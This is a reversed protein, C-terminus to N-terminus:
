YYFNYGERDLSEDEVLIYNNIEYDNLNYEIGQVGHHKLRINVKKKEKSYKKFENFNSSIEKNKNYTYYGQSLIILGSNIIFLFVVVLSIINLLKNKQKMLYIVVYIPLLYIYPIYRAWYSGDLALVLIITTSLLILYLILKDYEKKNILKILIYLSGIISIIFVGSFLPGFGGVRIDPSIFNTIEKRYVRFPIKLEPENLYTEYSPSVDESKSFISILFQIGHSKESMSKPIEKNIMNEVHGKGYLPYFPHGYNVLNKTYTNNAVVIIAIFVTVLYFISDKLIIKKFEKKNNVFNYIHRYLYLVGAFVAAFAFGNFKTNCCWIIAMALILYNDKENKKDEWKVKLSCILIILFLTIALVGDLYLNTIQTLTIPNFALVISLLISKWEEIKMQKLIYFSIFLGIFLWLINFVKATEINDTFAYIVAGFTETGRAYHNVWKTNVNDELINFPNNKFGEVKEYLPNWGNKLAGVALKHYTNGDATSDYIQGVFFTSVIFVITGIFIILLSKKYNEKKRYIIFLIISLIYIIPLHFITISVKFVFLINTIVLILTISLLLFIASEKLYDFLKYIKYDQKKNKKAM